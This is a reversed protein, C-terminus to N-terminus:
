PLTRKQKYKATSESKINPTESIHTIRPFLTKDDFLTKLGCM